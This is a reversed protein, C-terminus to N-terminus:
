LEENARLLILKHIPRNLYNVGIQFKKGDIFKAVKIQASRVYGDSDKHVNVIRGTSWFNRPLLQDAVLVLDGEQLSRQPTFWKQRSNLLPIYERRWRIWFMHALHKVQRWRRRHYNESKEFLGLPFSIGTNLRLIHNPTLAELDDVDSTIPTLPRNNLMDEVECMFTSLIEDTLPVKNVPDALISNLTKKLTRIEREWIGGFHPASPPNFKWQIGSSKCHDDIQHQNWNQVADKLDKNARVYNTGNDSWLMRVPGRRSTFRRLANIFSDTDLTHAIEIHIARSALCTFVVGYRKETTRGRTVTIPGFYDTGTNTFPPLDGTVRERPLDGMIQCSQRGQVKRCIICQRLMKKVISSAGVLHISERLKSLVAEKGFHGIIRHTHECFTEIIKEKCSILIPHKTNDPLTSNKLRGRVRIIGRSDLFPNFKHLNYSKPLIEQKTLAQYIDDMYLKQVLKWIELEANEIEHVTLRSSQWTRTYLCTKLRLLYAIRYKLKTWNSCCSLLIHFPDQDPITVMVRAEKLLEVDDQAVTDTIEKSPWVAEPEFLFKPGHKWIDNVLFEQVNKSGRSLLDAPNLTGPVHRWQDISTKSRIFSVRNFVFRQFRHEDSRIYCLVVTSDTWFVTKDVKLKLEARIIQELYVALRAANLEIRPVTKLSSNNIPTLRVRSMVITSQIHGLVDICRIYAVAGYAILSGDCFIHLETKFSCGVFSSFCRPVEFFNLLKVDDTWKKWRNSLCENLPDDWGCKLLCSEQFIRKGTIIVPSVIFLPDYIRFLTSLLIRKTPSSCTQLDVRFGFTDRQINWIVGLARECPLDDQGLDLERLNKSLKEHPLKQLLKRSNSTFGTLNFGYNGLVSVVSEALQLAAEESHMSKLLDDVYFNNRICSSVQSCVVSDATSRLAFNSCSPSSKAGFVHVRLRYQHPSRALDNDPYWLFRLFDSDKSPVRVRYFMSEIDASFAFKGERFRLLVGLLSSTMDPGQLLADNLSLGYFKRSCDFVIRLKKKQKHRVSFHVLYWGQGPDFKLEDVPVKEAYGKEIMDDMFSSYESFYKPDKLFQQKLRHMSNVVQKYNYPLLINEKFPLGIEIQNNELNKFSSTVKGLWKEDDFSSKIMPESDQFDLSFCKEFQEELSINREEVNVHFCSITSLGSSVNGSVAWGFMHKTAYPGNRNTHVISLPRLIDSRNLGILLGIKVKAYEIPLNELNSYGITDRRSPSDEITFPWNSKLFAGDLITKNQGDISHIEISEVKSCTLKNRTGQMTTLSLEIPKTKRNESPVIDEDIFCDSSFPDLGMYTRVLNSSGEFRLDVLVSPFVIREKKDSTKVHHAAASSTGFEEILRSPESLPQCNDNRSDNSAFSSEMNASYKGTKHLSTPHQRKCIKCMLKSRCAKTMHTTSKLCGFCIRNHRIFDEREKISKKKFFICNDLDHNRKKCCPCTYDIDSQVATAFIKRQPPKDKKRLDDCIDGLIPMELLRSQKQIFQALYKFDVKQGSEIHSGATDRFKKRLDYPLKKVIDRIEKLSNLQNLEDMNSMMALCRNLFVSLEKLASSDEKKIVPWNELKELYKSAILYENGYTSELLQRATKYAKATNETNCSSVLKNAGGKTYKLLCYFLDSPDSTRECISKEFAITFAKYELPDSGDFTPPETIPLQVRLHSKALLMSIENQKKMIEMLESNLNEESKKPITGTKSPLIPEGSLKSRFNFLAQPEESTIVDNLNRYFEENTELHQNYWDEFDSKDEPPVSKKMESLSASVFNDIKQRFEIQFKRLRAVDLSVEQDKLFRSIQNRKRTMAALRASPYQLSAEEWDDDSDATLDSSGPVFGLVTQLTGSTGLNAM